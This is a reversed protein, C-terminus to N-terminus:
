QDALLWQLMPGFQRGWFLEDHKGRDKLLIRIKHDPYGAEKLVNYTNQLTKTMGKSETKSGMVYIKSIINMQIQLVAPYLWFAPSFVGAKGFTECYRTAAFFSLLGGMSSGAIITNERDSLTRLHQDVKPKLEKTIFEIFKDGEGHHFLKHQHPPLYELGRFHGGNDIGVIICQHKYPLKDMEKQLLWPRAYSTKFDFLNQGDLMYLVPFSREPYRYYAAPLLIRTTRKRNLTSINIEQVYIRSEVKNTDTTQM